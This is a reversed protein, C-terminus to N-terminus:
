FEFLRLVKMDILGLQWDRLEYLVRKVYLSCLVLQNQAM